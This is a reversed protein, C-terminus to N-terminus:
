LRSWQSRLEIKTSVRTPPKPKVGRVRHLSLGPEREVHMIYRTGPKVANGPELPLGPLTIERKM